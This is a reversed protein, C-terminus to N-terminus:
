RNAIASTVGKAINWSICNLVGGEKAIIDSRVPVVKKFLRSFEEMAEDDEKINFTPVFVSDGMQLYNIYIGTADWKSRNRYPNYTIPICELKAKRLQSMVAESFDPEKRYSNILVTKEDLFRVMGDVHGIKDNTKDWPLYILEDLQLLHQLEATLDNQGISPNEHKIKECMIAKSGHRVVNGGDLLIESKERELNITDCIADVDSITKIYTPSNRLYDPFYKFQVFRSEAVQIPMFDVAWIDKTPCLIDYEIGHGDLAKLFNNRFSDYKPLNLSQALWLFNTLSDNM